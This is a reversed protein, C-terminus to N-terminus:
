KKWKHAEKQDSLRAEVWQEGAKSEEKKWFPAEIKLWDMLFACAELAAQRHVSATAVLVIKDGPLLRGYRHLILSAQLDWRQMAEAEIAALKKETMGPYHELELSIIQGNQNYDRVYGTFQAIGGIDKRDKILQAIEHESDFDELQVKIM